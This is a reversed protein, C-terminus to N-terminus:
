DAPWRFVWRLDRSGVTPALRDRCGAVHAVSWGRPEGRGLEGHSEAGPSRARDGVRRGEPPPDLRLSATSVKQGALKLVALDTGPDRGALTAPATTGDPLTATINEDRSRFLTTYPFLTSRPPRRIM